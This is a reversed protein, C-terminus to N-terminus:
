HQRIPLKLLENFCSPMGTPHTDVAATGEERRPVGSTRSGRPVGGLVHSWLYGIGRGGTSLCVGRFVYGEKATSLSNLLAFYHFYLTPFGLVSVM